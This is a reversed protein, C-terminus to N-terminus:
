RAFQQWQLADLAANNITVTAWGVDYNTASIKVLYQGTLGGVPVGAGVLGRVDTADAILTVFGTAGIYQGIAPKTGTGGFWDFIQRVRRAGDAVIAEIPM